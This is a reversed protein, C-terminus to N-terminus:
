AEVIVTLPQELRTELGTALDVLRLEDLVHCGPRVALFRMRVSACTNSTLPRLRPIFSSITLMDDDLVDSTISEHM